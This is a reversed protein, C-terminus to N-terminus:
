KKLLIELMAAYAPRTIFVGISIGLITTLAFGKLLGAGAFLLPVMSAVGTFYAVMIIFFARKIREKWGFKQSEGKLTEDAIVIQDDVGTGVAVIIGAIAAMDINWRILAAVGLILIVESLMTIIMPIAIKIQRYRFFIVVSVALIAALAMIIANKVFDQGLVPSIADTKEVDLKVPLSGTILITQLRKMNALASFIADQRTAGSGGGSIMIDTAAKGKLDAGINLEDVLADDLYLYLKDSLYEQGSDPDPVVDLTGTADAQTRAAEPSLSITFRFACSWQDASVQGCGRQPDIGSCDASRCVYTVDNGGRFVTTNGVKAEFKGQKSILDRVEEQNAGAIEVLVYQNGELDSAERVVIESLGFVNLREKLNDIVISMDEDSIKKEPQLLVRTGGQLDLGKVINTTPAEYISLGIDQTGTVDELTKQIEITRNITENVPKEFTTGNKYKFTKNVEVTEEVTQNEWEDLYTVNVIPLTKLQYFGTSTKIQVTRNPKLDAVLDHYDKVTHVPENNVYLVREKAMPTSTPSPSEIGALSASSNRTVSRIAVGDANPSPHIAIISLVLFVILLIIRVSKLMQKITAKM